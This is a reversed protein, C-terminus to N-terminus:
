QVASVLVNGILFNKIEFITVKIHNLTVYKKEPVQVKWPVLLMGLKWVKKM